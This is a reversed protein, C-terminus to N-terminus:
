VPLIRFQQYFDSAQKIFTQTSNDSIDITTKCTRCSVAKNPVLERLSQLGSKRCHPCFIAIKITDAATHTLPALPVSRSRRTLM